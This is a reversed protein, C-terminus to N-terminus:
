KGGDYTIEAYVKGARYGRSARVAGCSKHGGTVVLADPSIDCSGQSVLRVRSEFGPKDVVPPTKGKKPLGYTTGPIARLQANIGFQPVKSQVSIAAEHNHLQVSGEFSFGD